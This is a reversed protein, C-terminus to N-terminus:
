NPSSVQEAAISFRATARSKNEQSVRRWAATAEDRSAFPGLLQRADEKLRDFSMSAYEGGVVWYRETTM